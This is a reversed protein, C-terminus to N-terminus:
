VVGPPASVSRRLQFYKCNIRGLDLLAIWWDMPRVKSGRVDEWRMLPYEQIALRGNVGSRAVLRAIIEVDFIWRSVYPDKFTEAVPKCVRFLKAGCQTDYCPLRLTLSACTAFVRGLYHRYPKRVIHRGLLQVRAGMVVLLQPNRELEAIFDLIADLPTALDADWYGVYEAGMALAYLVGHRVAEAKGHNESLELLKFRSPSTSVLERLLTGTSDTSGDNVFVFSIGSNEDTWKAFADFHLREAENYCPVVVLVSTKVGLTGAPNNETTSMQKGHLLTSM